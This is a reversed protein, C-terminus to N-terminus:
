KHEPHEKWANHTEEKEFEVISIREGDDSNLTKFSIFGSMKNALSEM